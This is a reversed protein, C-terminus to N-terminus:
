TQRRQDRFTVSGKPAYARYSARGNCKLDTARAATVRKPFLFHAQRHATGRWKGLGTIFRRAEGSRHNSQPLQAQPLILRRVVLFLM